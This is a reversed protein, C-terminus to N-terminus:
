GICLIVWVVTSGRLEVGPGCEVRKDEVLNAFFMFVKSDVRSSKDSATVLFIVGDAAKTPTDDDFLVTAIDVM